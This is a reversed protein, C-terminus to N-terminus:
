IDRRDECNRRYKREGTLVNGNDSEDGPIEEIKVVERVNGEMVLYSSLIIPNSAALNEHSLWTNGHSVMYELVEPDYCYISINM